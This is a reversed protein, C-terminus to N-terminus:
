FVKLEVGLRDQSGGSGSPHGKCGKVVGIGEFHKGPIKPAELRKIPDSM